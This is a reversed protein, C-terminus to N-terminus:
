QRKFPNTEMLITSERRTAAPAKSAHTESSAVAHWDALAALVGAAAALAATAAL